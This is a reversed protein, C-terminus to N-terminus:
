KVPIWGENAAGKISCNTFRFFFSSLFCVFVKREALRPERFEESWPFDANRHQREPEGTCGGDGTYPAKGHLCRYSVPELTVLVCRRLTALVGTGKKNRGRAVGLGSAGHFMRTCGESCAVLIAPAVAM